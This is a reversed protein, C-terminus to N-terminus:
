SCVACNIAGKTGRVVIGEVVESTEAARQGGSDVLAGKARTICEEVM